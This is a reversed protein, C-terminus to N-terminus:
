TIRGTKLVLYKYIKRFGLSRPIFRLHQNLMRWMSQSIDFWSFAYHLELSITSVQLLTLQASLTTAETQLTQVKRELEAIYRM